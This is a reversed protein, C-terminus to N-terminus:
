KYTLIKPILEFRNESIVLQILKVHHLPHAPNSFQSLIVNRLELPFRCGFSISDISQPNIKKLFIAYKKDGFPESLGAMELTNCVYMDEEDQVKLIRQDRKFYSLLTYLNEDMNKVAKEPIKVADAWCMPIICRHEKEYLWDDSKTTLQLISQKKIIENIDEESKETPQPRLNDYNVKVPTYSEIGLRTNPKNPLSNFIEKKYGICIGKHEDAYHAWMLINRPTESLSFIAYDSLGGFIRSMINYEEFISSDENVNYISDLEIKLRDSVDKNLMSEFPDNLTIPPSLRVNCSILEKISRFKSYKYFIDMNVGRKPPKQKSEAGGYLLVPPIRQVSGGPV